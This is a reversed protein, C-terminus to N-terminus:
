TGAAEAVHEVVGDADPKGWVRRRNKDLKARAAGVLDHGDSLHALLLFVDAMEEVDDPQQRLEIAEKLLHASKSHPNAQGFTANAWAISDLRVQDLSDVAGPGREYGGCVTVREPTDIRELTEADYFELGMTIAVAVECRAGTSGEWGPLLAVADCDMLYLLDVHIYKSGAVNPDNGFYARGIEVPSSVEWAADRFRAAAAGFAPFNHGPLGRMPGAIYIRRM